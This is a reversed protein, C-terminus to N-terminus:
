RVARLYHISDPRWHQVQSAYKPYKAADFTMMM